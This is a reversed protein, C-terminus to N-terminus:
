SGLCGREHHMCPELGHAHMPRGVCLSLTTHAMCTGAHAWAHAQMHRLGTGDWTCPGAVIARVQWISGLTARHAPGLEKQATKKAELLIPEVAQADRDKYYLTVGLLSRTRAKRPSILWHPDFGDYYSLCRELMDKAREYKRSDLMEQGKRQLIAYKNYTDEDPVPAVVATGWGLGGPLHKAM